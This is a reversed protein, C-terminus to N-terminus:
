AEKPLDFFSNEPNTTAKPHNGGAANVLIDIKGWHALIADKNKELVTKDMVDSQLLLVESGIADLAEALAAPLANVRDLITLKAGCKALALTMEAGLVGAGGTIVISKESFDFWNKFENKSM